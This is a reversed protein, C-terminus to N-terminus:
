LESLVATTAHTLMQTVHPIHRILTLVGPWAAPRGALQARAWWSSDLDAPLQELSVDLGDLIARLVLVDIGHQHAVTILAAAEMEVAVAGSRLAASRKAEPSALVLPSSLIPGQLARCSLSAPLRATATEWASLPVTYRHLSTIGEWVVTAPLVIDGPSAHAVLAGAFGVSVVLDYATVLASLAAQARTPGVGAQVLTVHRDGAKAEWARFGSLPVRKPHTLAALVAQTEAKVATVVVLRRAERTSRM